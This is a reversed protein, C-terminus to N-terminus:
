ALFFDRIETPEINLIEVVSFMEEITFSRNNNLKLSLTPQSLKLKDALYDQTINEEAM